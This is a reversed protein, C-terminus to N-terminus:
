FEFPNINCPYCLLNFERIRIWDGDANQGEVYIRAGNSCTVALPLQPRAFPINISGSLNDVPITQTTFFPLVVRYNGTQGPLTTITVYGVFLCPFWGGQCYGQRSWTVTIGTNSHFPLDATAGPDTPPIARTGTPCYLSGAAKLKDSARGNFESIAVEMQDASLLFQPDDVKLYEIKESELLQDKSCSIIVVTTILLLLAVLKTSKFLQYFTQRSHKM